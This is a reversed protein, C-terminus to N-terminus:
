KCETPKGWFGVPWGKAADEFGLFVNAVKRCCPTPPNSVPYPLLLPTFISDLRSSQVGHSRMTRYCAVAAARVRRTFDFFSVPLQAADDTTHFLFDDPGIIRGAWTQVTIPVPYWEPNKTIGVFRFTAM